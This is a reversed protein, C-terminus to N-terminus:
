LAFWAAAMRQGVVVQSAPNLHVPDQLTATETLVKVVRSAAAADQQAQVAAWATADFSAGTYHAIRAYIVPLTPVGADARLNAVIGAFLSGWASALQIVEGRSDVQGFPYAAEEEGQYWLVGALSASSARIYTQARDYLPHGKRWSGIGSAGEAALIIGVKSVGGAVLARAFPVAPGAVSRSQAPTAPDIVPQWSIGDFLAISGDSVNATEIQLDYGNANSQGALLFVLATSPDYSTDETIMRGLAWIGKTAVVRAYCRALIRPWTRDIAAIGLAVANRSVTRAIMLQIMYPDVGGSISHISWMGCVPCTLKAYDTDAPSASGSLVISALAITGTHGLEDHRYTIDGNSAFAIPRVAM